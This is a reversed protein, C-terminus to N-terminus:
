NSKNWATTLTIINKELGMHQILQKMLAVNGPVATGTLKYWLLRSIVAPSQLLYRAAVVAKQLLSTQKMWARGFENYWYVRKLENNYISQDIVGKEVMAAFASDIYSRYLAFSNPNWFNGADTAQADHQRWTALYEPVHVVNAALGARMGWELDATAGKDTLFLGTKAFLSRKILVQTISTYVTLLGCHLIGDYPAYRIHATRLLDGFYQFQYYEDWNSNVSPQDKEDIITLLCTALECDPHQELAASMKELCDPRMTDDSPAIYVYDGKAQEIGTNWAKYIGEKPFQQAIFRPDKKALELLYEWSGNTSYGDVIICEWHQVTQAVISEVRKELFPLPTNLNPLIISIFSNM